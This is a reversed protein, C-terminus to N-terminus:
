IGEGQMNQLANTEEGEKEWAVLVVNLENELQKIKTKQLENLQALTFSM